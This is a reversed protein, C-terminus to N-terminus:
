LQRKVPGKLSLGATLAGVVLKLENNEKQIREFEDNKEVMQSCWGKM